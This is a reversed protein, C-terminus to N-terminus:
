LSGGDDDPIEYDEISVVPSTLQWGGFPRELIFEMSQGIEFTVDNGYSVWTGDRHLNALSTDGKIRKFRGNPDDVLYYTSGSTHIKKVIM